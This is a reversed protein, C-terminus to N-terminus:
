CREKRWKGIIMGLILLVIFIGFGAAVLKGKWGFSQVVQDTVSVAKMEEEPVEIRHGRVLLRHTNIGYPTCTILTVYDQDPEVKLSSVQDPEVVQIQDVQYVLKENLIYLVFPDGEELKDLDTFLLASPLGRHGSLVSHTGAGGVPLSTGALHGVGNQLAQDGTGHYIPLRVSIKPIELYGMIGDGNLNLLEWYEDAQDPETGTFADSFTPDLRDNYARAANWIASYDEKDMREVTEVYSSILQNQRYQNWLDSFTPYFLVLLGIVFILCPLINRMWKRKM